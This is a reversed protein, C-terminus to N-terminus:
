FESGDEEEILDRKERIEKIQKCTGWIMLLIGIIWLGFGTLIWKDGTSLKEM